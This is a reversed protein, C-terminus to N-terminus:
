KVEIRTIHRVARGGHKDGPVILRFGDTLPQGDRALAILAGDNGYDPNIEGLSLVVAYGDDAEVTITHRLMSREDHDTIEARALVDWLRVGRYRGTSQGHGTHFSVAIDQQPMSDLVSRTFAQPHAVLGSIVIDASPEAAWARGVAALLLILGARASRHM